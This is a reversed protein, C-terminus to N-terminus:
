LKKLKPGQATDQVTWGRAALEARIRDAEAWNKAQRAALRREMLATLEPDMQTADPQLFGLVRDFDQWLAAVAALEGPTVSRSDFAKNGAHVLDFLAGLAASINLDEDLAAEFRSRAEQAWAPLEAPAVLPETFSTALPVPPM